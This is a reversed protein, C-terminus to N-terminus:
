KQRFNGNILQDVVLKWNLNKTMVTGRLNRSVLLTLSQASRLLVCSAWSFSLQFFDVVKDCMLKSNIAKMCIGGGKPGKEPYFLPNALM